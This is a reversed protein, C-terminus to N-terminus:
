HLGIIGLILHFHDEDENYLRLLGSPSAFHEVGVSLVETYGDSYVKGVYPNIYKGPLAMEHPEYARDKVLESLKQAPGTARSDRFARMGEALHPNNFELIHGLEHWLVERSRSKGINVERTNPDAYARPRAPDIKLYRMDAQTTKFLERFWAIDSRLMSTGEVRPWEREAKSASPHRMIRSAFKMSDSDPDTPRTGLISDVADLVAARQVQRLKTVADAVTESEKQLERVKKWAAKNEKTGVLTTRTEAQWSRLGANLKWMTRRHELVKEEADQIIKQARAMGRADAVKRGLSILETPSTIDVNGFASPRIWPPLVASKKPFRDELESITLPRGRQNLLDKLNDVRGERWMKAKAKGLVDDQVSEPQKRLWDEYTTSEPVQGDLSSRTAPPLNDLQEDLGLEAASKLVPVSTSRCNPHIAGPGAGWALRHGVPELTKVDYLMHDRPICFEITTRDDLTSLWMLGKILDDNDQWTQLRAANAVTSISSRVLTEAHHRLMKLGIGGESEPARVMRVIEDTTDGRLMGERIVKRFQVQAAESQKEWWTRLQVGLVAADDALAELTEMGVAVTPLDIPLAVELAKQSFKAENQAVDLLKDRTYDSIDGYASDISEQTQKLLAEVRLRQAQTLADPEYSETIQQILSAKLDELMIVVQRRVHESFRMLNVGRHTVADLLEENATAM